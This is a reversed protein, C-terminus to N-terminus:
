TIVMEGFQTHGTEKEHAAANKTGQGIWNCTECRIVFNTTDTFYHVNQLQQALKRAMDLVEDDDTPWKTVDVEAPYSLNM